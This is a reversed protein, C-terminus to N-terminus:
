EPCQCRSKHELCDHLEDHLAQRKQREEGLEIDKLLIKESMKLADDRWQKTQGDQIGTLDVRNRNKGTLWNFTAVGLGGGLLGLIGLGIPLLNNEM